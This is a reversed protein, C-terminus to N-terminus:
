RFAGKCNTSSHILQQPTYATSGLRDIGNAGDARDFHSGFWAESAMDKVRGATFKALWIGSIAGNIHNQAYQTIGVRWGGVVSVM